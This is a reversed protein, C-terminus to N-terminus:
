QLFYYMVLHFADNAGLGGAEIYTNYRIVKTCWLVSRKFRANACNLEKKQRLRIKCRTNNLSFGNILLFIINGV